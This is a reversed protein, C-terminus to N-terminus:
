GVLVTPVALAAHPVSPLAARPTSPLSARLAFPLVIFLVGFAATTTVGRAYYQVAVLVDTVLDSYCLVLTVCLRVWLPITCCANFPM